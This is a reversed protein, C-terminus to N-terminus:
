ARRASAPGQKGDVEESGNRSHAARSAGRRLWQRYQRGCPGIRLKRAGRATRGARGGSRRLWGVDASRDGRELRTRCARQFARRGHRCCRHGRSARPDDDLHEVLRWLGAVGVDVFRSAAEGAFALTRAAESAVPVDSTGGCVIAIRASTSSSPPLRGPDGHAIGRRLRAGTAGADALQELKARDLRTLLLRHGLTRAHAVIADIQQASKPECLVAESTGTRAIREWDIEFDDMRRDRASIGRRARLSARRRVCARGRPVGAGIERATGACEANDRARARHRHGHPHRSLTARSRAASARRSAHSSPM